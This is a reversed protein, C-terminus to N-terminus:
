EHSKPLLPSEETEKKIKLINILIFSQVYFVFLESSIVIFLLLSNNWEVKVSLYKKNISEKHKENINKLVHTCIRM